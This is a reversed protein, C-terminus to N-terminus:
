NGARACSHRDTAPSRGTIRDAVFAADRGVGGIFNSSRHHQFRQGLVYLGPVPTRGRRQQIEGDRNLV